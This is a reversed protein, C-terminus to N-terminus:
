RIKNLMRLIEWSPLTHEAETREIPLPPRLEVILPYHFTVPDGELRCRPRLPDGSPDCRHFLLDSQVALPTYRVQVTGLCRELATLATVSYHGVIEGTRVRARGQNPKSVILFRIRWPLGKRRLASECRCLRAQLARVAPTIAHRCVELAFLGCRRINHKWPARCLAHRAAAGDTRARVSGPDGGQRSGPRLEPRGQFCGDLCLLALAALAAVPCPPQPSFRRM